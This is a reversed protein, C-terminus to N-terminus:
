GLDISQLYIRLYCDIPLALPATQLPQPGISELYQYLQQENGDPLDCPSVNGEEDIAPYTFIRNSGRSASFLCWITICIRNPRATWPIM